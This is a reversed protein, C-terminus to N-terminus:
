AGQAPYALALSKVRMVVYQCPDCVFNYLVFIHYPQHKGLLYRNINGAELKVLAGGNSLADLERIKDAVKDATVFLAQVITPVWSFRRKLGCVLALGLIIHLGKM